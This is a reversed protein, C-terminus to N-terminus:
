DGLTSRRAELLKTMVDRADEDNLLNTTATQYRILSYPTLKAEREEKATLWEVILLVTHNPPPHLHNLVFRTYLSTLAVRM